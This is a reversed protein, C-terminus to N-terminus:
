WNVNVLVCPFSVEHTTRGTVNKHIRRLISTNPHKIAIKWADVVTPSSTTNFDMREEILIDIVRKFAAISNTNVILEYM